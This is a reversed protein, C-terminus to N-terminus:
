PRTGDGLGFQDRRDEPVLELYEDRRGGIFNAVYSCHPLVALGRIRADDLAARVLIGALGRGGHDPDVETHMFEISGTGLRYTAMGVQEGDEFIEYRHRGPDDRVETTM